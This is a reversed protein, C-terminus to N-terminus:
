NDLTMVPTGILMVEAQVHPEWGLPRGQRIFIGLRWVLVGLIQISEQKQTWRGKQGGTLQIGWQGSRVREDVAQHCAKCGSMKRADTGGLTFM